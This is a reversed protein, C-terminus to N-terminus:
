QDSPDEYLFRVFGSLSGPSTSPDPEAYHTSYAPPIHLASLPHAFGSAEGSQHSQGTFISPTFDGSPVASASAPSHFASFTISQPEPPPQHILFTSVPTYQPQPQRVPFTTMYQSPNSAAAFMDPYKHRMVVSHLQYHLQERAHVDSVSMLEAYLMDCFIRTSNPAPQDPVPVASEQQSMKATITTM